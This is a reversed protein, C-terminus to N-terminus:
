MKAPDVEVEALLLHHELREMPARATSKNRIRTFHRIRCIPRIATAACMTADKLMMKAEANAEICMMVTPIAM